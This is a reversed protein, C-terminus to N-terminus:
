FAANSNKQLTKKPFEGRRETKEKWGREVDV